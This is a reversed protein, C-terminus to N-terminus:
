IRNGLRFETRECHASLRKRAQRILSLQLIKPLPFRGRPEVPEDISLRSHIARIVKADREKITIFPEALSTGSSENEYPYYNM